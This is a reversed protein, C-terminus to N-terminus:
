GTLSRAVLHALLDIEDPPGRRTVLRDDFSAGRARERIHALALEFNRTSHPTVAAGLADYHAHREAVLWPTAGPAAFLYLVAESDATRTTVTTTTKKNMVLGGTLVARAPAFRKQTVTESAETRTRHVARVLATIEHWPLRAGAGETAVLADEDFRFRRVQQMADSAVIESSECLTAGHGRALLGAVCAHANAADPTSLVVVPVGANLKLRQDYAVTGLSAALARAEDEVSTGLRTIAVIYLTSPALPILEAM